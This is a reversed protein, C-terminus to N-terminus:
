LLYPNRVMLRLAAFDGRNRSHERQARETGPQGGCSFLMANLLWFVIGDQSMFFAYDFTM